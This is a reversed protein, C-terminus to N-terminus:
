KDAEPQSAAAPKSATSAGARHLPKLGLDIGHLAREEQDPIDTYINIHSISSPHM